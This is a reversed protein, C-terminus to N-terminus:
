PLDQSQIEPNRQYSDTIEKGEALAPNDRPARPAAPLPQPGVRETGATIQAPKGQLWWHQSTLNEAPTPTLTKRARNAQFTNDLSSFCSKQRKPEPM